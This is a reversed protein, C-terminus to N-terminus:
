LKEKLIYRSLIYGIYAYRFNPVYKSESSFRQIESAFLDVARRFSQFREKVNTKSYYALCFDIASIVLKEFIQAALQMQNGCFIMVCVMYFISVVNEDVCPINQFETAIEQRISATLAKAEKTLNSADGRFAMECITKFFPNPDSDIFSRNSQLDGTANVCIRIAYDYGNKAKPDFQAVQKMGNLYCIWFFKKLEKLIQESNAEFDNLKNPAFRFRYICSLMDPFMVLPPKEVNFIQYFSATAKTLAFYYSDITQQKDFKFTPILKQISNYLPPLPKDPTEVTLALILKDPKPTGLIVHCDSNQQKFTARVGQQVKELSKMQDSKVMIVQNKWDRSIVVWTDRQTFLLAEQSEQPKKENKIYDIKFIQGYFRAPLMQKSSM